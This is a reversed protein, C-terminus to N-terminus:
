ADQDGGSNMGLGNRLTEDIVDSWERDESECIEVIKSLVEPAFGTTKNVKIKRM